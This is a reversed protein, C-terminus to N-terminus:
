QEDNEVLETKEIPVVCDFQEPVPAGTTVYACVNGGEVKEFEMPNQGALSSVINKYVKEKSKEDYKIDEFKIAYGDMVSARFPPLDDKAYIDEALIHNLYDKLMIEDVLGTRSQVSNETILSFAEEM